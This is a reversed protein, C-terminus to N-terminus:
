CAWPRFGYHTAFSLFRSNYIPQEDEWRTVVVKMNDYLCTAALGGLHEFARIHQQLTNEFDQHETFCLYQRRSYSLVYSFLYVCRRGEHAFDLHYEAWDMQAQVGPSTEFRVVPRRRTDPRLQRVRERLITYGGEYGLRQLEEHIRTYTINPYRALLQQIPPLFADVKSGRAAVPQPLQSSGTEGHRAQQHDAITAAVRQRSLGLDRAIGRISQGGQHRTIIDNETQPNV